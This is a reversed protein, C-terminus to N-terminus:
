ENEKSDKYASVPHGTDGMILGAKGQHWHTGIDERTVRDKAQVKIKGKEVWGVPHNLEIDKQLEHSHSTELFEDSSSSSEEVEFVQIETKNLNQALDVLIQVLGVISKYAEPDVDKIQAVAPAKDKLRTLTELLKSKIQSTKDVVEGKQPLKEEDLSLGPFNLGQNPKESKMMEGEFEREFMQEVDPTYMVMKQAGYHDKSIISAKFAEEPTLGLGIGFLTGATFEWKEIFQSLQSVMDTSIQIAINEGFSTLVQGQAITKTWDSIEQASRGYPANFKMLAEPTGEALAAEYQETFNLPSFIVFLNM